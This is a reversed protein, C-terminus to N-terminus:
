LKFYEIFLYGGSVMSISHCFYQDVKYLLIVSKLMLLTSLTIVASLDFIMSWFLGKIDNKCSNALLAIFATYIIDIM